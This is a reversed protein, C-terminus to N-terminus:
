ANPLETCDYLATMFDYDFYYYHLEIGFKNITPIYLYFM